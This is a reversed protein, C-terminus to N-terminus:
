KRESPAAYWGGTDGSLIGFLRNYLGQLFWRVPKWRLFSWTRRRRDMAVPSQVSISFHEAEEGMEPSVLNGILRTTRELTALRLYGAADIENDLENLGGMLRGVWEGKLFRSIVAKPSVFQNHCATAYARVGRREIIIDQLGRVHEMFPEIPKGLSVAWEFEWKEPITQGYSVHVEPDTEALRLNSEIGHDFLTREPNGSVMGVNPFSDLLQIHEKLWGPYFFTDDDTYALLEGPAAGAILRLAGLKGINESSTLLYRIRGMELLTSLYAKVEECSANDFILLDFPEQTHKFISALCLKLVEFRHQFFGSLHPIYVLVALTVRAPKYDSLRGRAPNMGVRAM